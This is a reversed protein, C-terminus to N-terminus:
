RDDQEVPLPWPTKVIISRKGPRGPMGLDTEFEVAARAPPCAKAQPVKVGLKEFLQIQFQQEPCLHANLLRVDAKLQEVDSKLGPERGSGDIERQTDAIKVEHVEVKREPAKDIRTWFGLGLGSLGSLVAAMLAIDKWSRIRFKGGFEIPAASQPPTHEEEVDPRSRRRERALEAKARAAEARAAEAQQALAAKEAEHEALRQAFPDDASRLPLRRTPVGPVPRLPPPPKTPRTPDSM